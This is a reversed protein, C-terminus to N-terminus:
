FLMGNANLCVRFTCTHWYCCRNCGSCCGNSRYVALDLLILIKFRRSEIGCVGFPSVFNLLELGLLCFQARLDFRQLSAFFQDATLRRVRKTEPVEEPDVISRPDVYPSSSESSCGTAGTLSTAVLFVGALMRNFWTM